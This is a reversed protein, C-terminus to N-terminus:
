GIQRYIEIANLAMHHLFLKHLPDGPHPPINLEGAAKVGLHYTNVCIEPVVVRRKLNVANATTRLHLATQYVCLDTCNGVVIFLNLHDNDSLWADFGTNHAPHLSNKEIIRMRPYFALSQIEDVAQAEGSGWVSHDAFAHFEEADQSHCDHLLVFDRIGYGWARKLLRTIPPILAANRESALNGIRCFGNIMDVSIIATHEPKDVLDAWTIDDLTDIFTNVFRLYNDAHTDM